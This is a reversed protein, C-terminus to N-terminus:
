RVDLSKLQWVSRSFYANSNLETRSDYDYVIFLPGKNDVRLYEGNAKLAIIVPYARADSVPLEASYDNLAVALLRDGSAEVRDLLTALPVGEFRVPGNDWPTVTEFSVTGLGELMARDFRAAQGDNRVGIKGSVELVPRGTPEPLPEAASAGFALPLALGAAAVTRVFHQVMAM